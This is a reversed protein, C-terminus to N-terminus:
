IAIQLISGWLTTMSIISTPRCCADVAKEEIALTSTLAAPGGVLVLRKKKWLLECCNGVWGSRPPDMWSTFGSSRMESMEWDRKCFASANLWSSLTLFLLVEPKNSADVEVEAKAVNGEAVRLDDAKECGVSVPDWSCCPLAVINLATKLHLKSPVHTVITIQIRYVSLFFHHKKTTRLMLFKHLLPLNASVLSPEVLM